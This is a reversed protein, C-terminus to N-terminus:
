PIVKQVPIIFYFTVGETSNNRVWVNGGHLEAAYKALTLGLGRGSIRGDIDDEDSTSKPKGDELIINFKWITELYDNPISDGNNRVSFVNWNSVQKSFNKRVKKDSSRIENKLNKASVKKKRIEIKSANSHNIANRLFNSLATIIQRRIGFFTERGLDIEVPAQSSFEIASLIDKHLRMPAIPEWDEDVDESAVIDECVELARKMNLVNRASTEVTESLKGGNTIKRLESFRSHLRTFHTSLASGSFVNRPKTDPDSLKDRVSVMVAQVAAAENMIEKTQAKIAERNTADKSGLNIVEVNAALTTFKNAIEHSVVGRLMERVDVGAAGELLNQGNM